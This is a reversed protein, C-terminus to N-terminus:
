VSVCVCVRVFVSCFVCRLDLAKANNIRWPLQRCIQGVNHITNTRLGCTERERIPPRATATTPIWPLIPSSSLFFAPHQSGCMDSCISSLCSAHTKPPPPKPPDIALMLSFLFINYVCRAYLIYINYYYTCTPAATQSACADLLFIGDLIVESKRMSRAHTLAQCFMKENHNNACTRAGM